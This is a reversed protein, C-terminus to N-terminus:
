PLIKFITATEGAVVNNKSMGIFDYKTPIRTISVVEEKQPLIYVNQSTNSNEYLAYMNQRIGFDCYNSSPMFIIPYSSLSTGVVNGENLIDITFKSKFNTTISYFSIKEFNKADLGLYQQTYASTILTIKSYNLLDIRSIYYNNQYSSGSYYQYYGAILLFTNRYLFTSSEDSKESTSYKLTISKYVSINLYKSGASSGSLVLICCIDEDYNGKWSWFSPVSNLKTIELTTKNICFLGVNSLCYVNNATHYASSIATVDSPWAINLAQSIGNELKYLTFTSSSYWYSFIDESTVGYLDSNCLSLYNDDIKPRNVTKIPTESTNTYISYIYSDYKYYNQSKNFYIRNTESSIFIPTDATSTYAVLEGKKLDSATVAQVEPYDLDLPISTADDGSYTEINGTIKLDNVYATKGNLIDDSTATADLTSIENLNGEVGAIVTGSKINEPILTEPKNITVQNLLKGATPLVEQNGTSLALDIVASESPTPNVTISTLYKGSTPTVNSASTTATVIKEETQIANVVVSSLAKGSDPLVTQQATTPSVTKSQEVKQNDYSGTVGAITTGSKINEPILTEPKNITVQSLVKNTAPTIIQNGDAMSLDVTKTEEPKVILTGTAKTGDSKTFLKGTTVNSEEATTDCVTLIVEDNLKVENIAM